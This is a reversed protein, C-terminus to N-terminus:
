KFCVFLVPLCFAGVQDLFYENPYAQLVKAGKDAKYIREIQPRHLQFTVPAQLGPLCAM